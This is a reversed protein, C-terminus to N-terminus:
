GQQASNGLLHRAYVHIMYGLMLGNLCHWLFHTGIPFAECWTEDFSRLSISVGLVVAGVLFRGAVYPSKLWVFPAYLCLLVPISWYISSVGFFPLDRLTSTVLASYPFYTLTLLFAVAVPLRLVHLNVALIYTLIFLGIPTTDAIAAWRTAYTHFLFSGAGILALLVTLATVFPLQERGYRRYLLFAALLFAANTFANVPEAWFSADVRECYGDIHQTLDM